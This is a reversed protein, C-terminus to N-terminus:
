EFLRGKVIHERSMPFLDIGFNNLVFDAFDLFNLVLKVIAGAIKM